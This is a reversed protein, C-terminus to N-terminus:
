GPLGQAHGRIVLHILSVRLLTVKDDPHSSLLALLVDLHGLTSRGSVLGAYLHSHNSPLELCAVDLLHFAVQHNIQMCETPQHM